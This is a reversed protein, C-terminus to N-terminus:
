IAMGGHLLVIWCAFCQTREGFVLQEKDMVQGGFCSLCAAKVTSLCLHRVTGTQQRHSHAPSCAAADTSAKKAMFDPSSRSARGQHHCPQGDAGINLGQPTVAAISVCSVLNCYPLQTGTFSHIFANM